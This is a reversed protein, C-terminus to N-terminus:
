LDKREGVRRDQKFFSKKAKKGQRRTLAEKFGEDFFETTAAKGKRRRRGAQRTSYRRRLAGQGQRRTPAEKFGEDFFETTAAKGKRRRKGAEYLEKCYTSAEKGRRTKRKKKGLKGACHRSSLRRPGSAAATERLTGQVRAAAVVAAKGLKAAGAAASAARRWRGSTTTPQM